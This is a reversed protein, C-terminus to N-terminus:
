IKNRELDPNTDAPTGGLEKRLYEFKEDPTQQDCVTYIQAGRTLRAVQPTYQVVMSDARVDCSAKDPYGEPKEADAALAWGTEHLVLLHPFFPKDEARATLALALCLCYAGLVLTWAFLSRKM